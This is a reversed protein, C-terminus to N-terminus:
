QPLKAASRTIVSPTVTVGVAGDYGGDCESNGSAATATTVATKSASRAEVKSPSRTANHSSSSGQGRGTAAAAALSQTESDAAAAVAQRQQVARVVVVGAMLACGAVAGVVVGAFQGQTLGQQSQAAGLESAGAADGGVSSGSAGGGAPNLREGDTSGQGSSVAAAAANGELLVNDFLSYNLPQGYWTNRGLDPQGMQPGMQQLQQQETGATTVADAPGTGAAATRPTLSRTAATTSAQAALVSPQTRLKYFTARIADLRGM